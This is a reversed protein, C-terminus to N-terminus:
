RFPLLRHPFRPACVKLQDPTFPADPASLQLIDVMCSATYARVGEDKHALLNRQGLAESVAVLSDLNVHDQEMGHLERSLRKLRPILTSVPIPKGPRWTLEEDFQLDVIDGAPAREEDSDPQQEQEQEQEQEEAQAEEDGESEVEEVEEVELAEPTLPEPEEKSAARGRRRGRAM